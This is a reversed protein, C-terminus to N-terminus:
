FNIREQWLPHIWCETVEGDEKLLIKYTLFGGTKCFEANQIDYVYTGIPRDGSVIQHRETQNRFRITIDLELKQRHWLASPIRWEAILRQGAPVGCRRPDPSGVYFSAFSEETIYESRVFLKQSCGSLIIFFIIALSARM